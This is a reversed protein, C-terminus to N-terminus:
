YVSFAFFLTEKIQGARLSYFIYFFPQADPLGEADVVTKKKDVSTEGGDRDM